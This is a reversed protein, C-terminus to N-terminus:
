SFLSWRKKQLITKLTIFLTWHVIEPNLSMCKGKSEIWKCIVLSFWRNCFRDLGFTSFGLRMDYFV